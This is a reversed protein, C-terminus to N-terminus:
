KYQKLLKKLYIRYDEAVNKPKVVKIGLGFSSLWGYLQEDAVTMVKVKCIGEKHMKININSGFQKKVTEIHKEKFLIQIEEKRESDQEVERAAEIEPLAEACDMKEAQYVSLLIQMKEILAAAADRDANNLNRVAKVLMQVESLDFPRTEIYYGSPNSKKFRVQVGFQRLAELDDYISKREAKIGKEDLASIIQQMNLVHESDTNQMLMQMLYLIKLKQNFAKAM